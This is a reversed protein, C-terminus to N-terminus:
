VNSRKKHVKFSAGLCLHDSGVVFNPIKRLFQFCQRMTPLSYRELPEVDSYFIYDVTIWDDQETTAELEGNEKSHQYVSKMKFPHTLTGSAFKAKSGDTVEITQSDM